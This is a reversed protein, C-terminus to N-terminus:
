KIVLKASSSVLLFNKALNKIREDGVNCLAPYYELYDYGKRTIKISEDGINVHRWEKDKMDFLAIDPLKVGKMEEELLLKTLYREGIRDGLVIVPAVRHLEFVLKPFIILRDDLIISKNNNKILAAEM